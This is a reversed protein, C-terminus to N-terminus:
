VTRRAEDGVVDDGDTVPMYGVLKEDSIPELLLGHGAAAVALSRTLCMAM